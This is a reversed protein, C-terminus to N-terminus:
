QDVSYLIPAFTRVSPFLYPATFFGLVQPKAATKGGPIFSLAMFIIALVFGLM